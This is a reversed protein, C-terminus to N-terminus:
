GEYTRTHPVAPRFTALWREIEAPTRLRVTKHAHQPHPLARRDRRHARLTHIMVSDRGVFVDSWREVNGNWLSERTRVRRWSRRLLRALKTVLPLDLWVILDTRGSVFEGLRRQFTGDIVWRERGAIAADIGTRLEEDTADVWNAKHSIADCEVFPAELRRALERGLTTKGAGSTGIIAIRV